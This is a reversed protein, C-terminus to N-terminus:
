KKERYMFYGALMLLVAVVVKVLEGMPVAEWRVTLLLAMGAGGGAVTSAQDKNM